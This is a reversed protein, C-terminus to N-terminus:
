HSELWAQHEKAQDVRKLIFYTRALLVHIARLQEPSNDTGNLAREAERVAKDLMHRRSLHSARSLRAPGYDPAWELIRDIVKQSEENRSHRSLFEAYFYASAPNPKDLSVNAKLAKQFAAEAREAHNLRNEADGILTYVDVQMKPTVKALSLTKEWAEVAREEKHNLLAWMGYSYHSNPDDPALRVLRDVLEQAHKNRPDKDLQLLVSARLLVLSNPNKSLAQELKEKMLQAPVYNRLMTVYFDELLEERPYLALGRECAKLAKDTQKLNQYCAAMLTFVEPDPRTEMSVVSNLAELAKNFNGFRMDNQAALIQSESQSVPGEAQPQAEPTMAVTLILITIRWIASGGAWRFLAVQAM